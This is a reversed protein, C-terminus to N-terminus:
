REDHLYELDQRFLLFQHWQNLLCLFFCELLLSLSLLRFLPVNIQKNLHYSGGFAGSCFLRKLFGQLKYSTCVMYASLFCFAARKKM